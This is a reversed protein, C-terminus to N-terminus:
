GEEALDAPEDIDHLVGPDGTEVLAGDEAGLLVARGGVDGTRDTLAGAPLQVLAYTLWVVSVVAGAAANDVGFAGRVAPLLAPLVFRMGLVAFWGAAVVGVLRGRGGFAGGLARRLRGIRGAAEPRM